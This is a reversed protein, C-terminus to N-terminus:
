KHLYKNIYKNQMESICEENETAFKNLFITPLLSYRVQILLRKNDTPLSGKHLGYTDELFATGKQGIYEIRDTATFCSEVEEDNFRRREEFKKSNQSKQIFVHPGSKDDVDTLYMFLKIFKISDNDRHYFQENEAEDFGPLSWWAKINDIIPVAGLYDGVLALVNENNAFKIAEPIDVVNNIDAVHTQEPIDTAKFTGLDKRARDVCDLKTLKTILSEIEIETLINELMLYGNKKLSQADSNSNLSKLSKTKFFCLCAAIKNRIVTSRIAQQLEHFAFVWLPARNRVKIAM